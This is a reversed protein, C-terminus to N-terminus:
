LVFLTVQLTNTEQINVENRQLQLLCLLTFFHSQDKQTIVFPWAQASLIHKRAMTNNEM